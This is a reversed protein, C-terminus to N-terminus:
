FWKKAKEFFSEAVPNDADGCAEAFHELSERQKGSLKKPVEIEVRVLQDGPPGGRLDPMGKGRLRFTTGSQTGAPIKLNARGDLTPVEIAGGLAAVTFKIPILCFLNKDQREFIEHDKVHLVIFLDGPTGGAMGAEGNGVSRLKSGTDVGPPVKVKLKTTELQRGSGGCTSCPSDITQGAGGCSPCTQRMEFFGQSRIVRGQGGCTPCTRKNSGPEAGNGDCRGCPKQRRYSIEKDTGKAAEELSIEMDYRLDDGRAPGGRGGGGFFEEFIGGGGGGGGGFVERFIDMPDHFGGYGGAGGRPSGGGGEFAAHGFRDYASRKDPDKLVDYAESVEKFKEEAKADGPNKDPHYKVALKRYAKKLDAEGVDRSVGLVEYYDRKAM